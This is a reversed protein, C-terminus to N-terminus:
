QKKNKEFFLERFNMADKNIIQSFSGFDFKSLIMRLRNETKDLNIYHMWRKQVSGVKVHPQGPDIEWPHLYIVAPIDKTNLCTIARRTLCLPYFRFFGGGAVQITKGLLKMTPPPFELLEGGNPLKLRVPERPFNEIGYRKRGVPYISSDYCYGLEALVDLAWLNQRRISFNSARYGYISEGTLDSLRHGTELTETRFREESMDTVLDHNLGHSAIEHGRQHISKVILPQHKAVWGLVFFTAEVRFEDLIDLLRKVQNELRPQCNVWESRPIAGWLNYVQFWEEVDFSIINRIKEM